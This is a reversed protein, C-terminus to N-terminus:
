EATVTLGPVSAGDLGRIRCCAAWGGAFQVVKLLLTNRGERLEVEVQDQGPVLGRDVDARHVVQGNLWVKLGDDSGLQLQVRQARPSHVVARLYAARQDGGLLGGLDVIGQGARVPKWKTPADTEPPFATDILRGSGSTTFPGALLWTRVFDQDRELLDLTERAVAQVAPNTSTARARDIAARARAPDSEALRRGLQAAALAADDRLAADALLPEVLDLAAPDNLRAAGALVLRKEEPRAAAALARRYVELLRAPPLNTAQDAVAVVGRLAVIRHAPPSATAALELLDPLPSADPWGALTAAAEGRVAEDPDRVAARVAALAEPGGLQGLCALLALRTERSADAFADTLPRTRSASDPLQSAAALVTKVAAARDAATAATLLLRLLAPYEAAEALGALAQFAAARVVPEAEQAAALLAPVARRVGRTALARACEAREAPQGTQLGALLVADLAAGRARALSARAAQQEAGTRGAAATILSRAVPGTAELNGLGNLAALRVAPEAHSSAALLLQSTPAVPREALVTLVAAQRVPPLSDLRPALTEAVASAPLERLLGQAILDWGDRGSVLLEFVRAAARDPDSVVWGRLAAVRSAEPAAAAGHLREFILAATATQGAARLKDACVLFADALVPALSVKVPGALKVVLGPGGGGEGAREDFHVAVARLADLAADDAIHGLALVAAAVMDPEPRELLRVLAATSAPEARRGLANIVGLLTRGSATALAARLADGATPETLAELTATAAPALEADALARALAPVARATGIVRLQVCAFQRAEPAVSSDLVAVLDREVAARWAPDAQARRVEAEVANLLDAPQGYRFGALAAVPSEAARLPALGSAWIV